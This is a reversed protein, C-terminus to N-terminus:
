PTRSWRPPLVPPNASPQNVSVPVGGWDVVQRPPRCTTGASPQLAEPILCMDGKTNRAVFFTTDVFTGAIRLSDPDLDAAVVWPEEGALAEAQTQPRELLGIRVTDSAVPIPTDSGLRVFLVVLVAAALAIAGAPVARTAVWRPVHWRHARRAVDAWDGTRQPRPTAELLTAQLDPDRDTM